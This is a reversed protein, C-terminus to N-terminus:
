GRVIRYALHTVEPSDVVRTLELAVHVTGAGDFLRVGAGLFAPV